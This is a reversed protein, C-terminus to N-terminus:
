LLGEVLSRIDKSEAMRKEITKISYSISARSRGNMYRGVEAQSLGNRVALWALAQRALTVRRVQGKGLLEDVPIDLREVVRDRLRRFERAPDILQLYDSHRPHTLDHRDLTWARSLDRYSGKVDRATKEVAAARGNRSAAGELARLYALRADHGPLQIEAVFGSLLMSTIGPELEWIDRPHWRSTLLTLFGREERIKLIKLFERQTRLHRSFRHVGDVVLPKEGTLERELEDLKRDRVKLQFAQRLSKGDHIQHRVGCADRWWRLLFTKGVGPLGYFYFLRAALDRNQEVLSKLVLFATKNREDVVPQMPSVELADPMVSEPAPSVKVVMRTGIDTSLCEELLPAYLRAVRECAMRNEAELYITGRELALPRLGKLWSDYAADGSRSKLDAQIRVWTEKLLELM